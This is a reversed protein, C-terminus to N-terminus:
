LSETSHHQFGKAKSGENEVDEDEDDGETKEEDYDYDNSQNGDGLCPGGHSLTIKDASSCSFYRLRSSLM